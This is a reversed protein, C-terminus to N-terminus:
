RCRRRISRRSCTGNLIGNFSTSGGASYWAGTGGPSALTNLETDGQLHWFGAPKVNSMGFLRYGGTNGDGGFVAGPPFASINAGFGSYNTSGGHLFKMAVAPAGAGQYWWWEDNLPSYALGSVTVSNASQYDFSLANALAGPSGGIIVTTAKGIFQDNGSSFTVPPGHVAGNSINSGSVGGANMGFAGPGNSPQGPVVNIPDSCMNGGGIYGGYISTANQSQCYMLIGYKSSGDETSEYNPNYISEGLTGLELDDAIFNRGYEENMSSSSAYNNGEAWRGVWDYLHMNDEDRSLDCNIGFGSSCIMSMGIGWRAELMHSTFAEVRRKVATPVLWLM